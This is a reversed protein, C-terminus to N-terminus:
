IKEWNETGPSTTESTDVRSGTISDSFAPLSNTSLLVFINVSYGGLCILRVARQLSWGFRELQSVERNM